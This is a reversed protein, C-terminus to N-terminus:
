AWSTKQAEKAKELQSHIIMPKNVAIGNVRNEMAEIKGSLKQITEVMKDVIKNQELVFADFKADIVSNVEDAKMGNKSDEVEKEVKLLNKALIKTMEKLENETKDEEPSDETEIEKGETKPAEENESEAVVEGEEKAVGEADNESVEEPAEPNEGEKEAEEELPKEESNKIAEKEADESAVEEEKEEVVEEVENIEKKELDEENIKGSNVAYKKIADTKEEDTANTETIMSKLNAPITVLSFEVWDLATVIMTWGGVWCIDFWTPNGKSGVDDEDVTEGTEDNKFKAHKTIHGTSLGKLVGNEFAKWSEEDMLEKYIFGEVELGKETVKASTAKGIPKQSDHQLLVVPNLMYTEISEKFAKEEIVYGNRNLDGNSAIGRFFKAGDPVELGDPPNVANIQMKNFSGNSNIFEKLGKKTMVKSKEM